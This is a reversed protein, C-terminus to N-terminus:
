EGAAGGDPEAEVDVLWRLYHWNVKTPVENFCLDGKGDPVPVWDDETLTHFDGNEPIHGDLQMKSTPQLSTKAYWGRVFEGDANTNVYRLAAYYRSGDLRGIDNSITLSGLDAESLDHNGDWTQGAYAGAGQRAEAKIAFYMEFQVPAAASLTMRKISCATHGAEARTALKLAYGGNLSGHSGIDFFPLTSLQPPRLDRFSDRVNDLDGDHNGLLEVWGHTGKDFDDYSLIRKLPNFKSLEPDAALVARRTDDITMTMTTPASIRQDIRPHHRLHDAASRSPLRDADHRPDRVRGGDAPEVDARQLPRLVAYAGTAPHVAQQRAPLHAARPVLELQEARVARDRGRDHAARAPARGALLHRLIRSRRHSGCGRARAASLFAQRMVFTCIVGTGSFIPMLILPVHTNMLGLDGIIRYLPIITTEEPIFFGSMILLFIFTSGRFRLRAFAYGALSSVIVTGLVVLAAIYLSNFFQQAFPQVQFIEIFNSWQWSPILSPPYAFIEGNTKLGSSLMWLAPFLFPVALVAMALYIFSRGVVLGPRLRRGKIRPATAETAKM